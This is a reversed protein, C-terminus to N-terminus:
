TAGKLCVSINCYTILALAVHVNDRIIIGICSIGILSIDNKGLVNSAFNHQSVYCFYINRTKTSTRLTKLIFSKAYHNIIM